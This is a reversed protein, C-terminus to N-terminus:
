YLYNVLRDEEFELICDFRLNKLVKGKPELNFNKIISNRLGVDIFYLKPRKTIEKLKNTYFPPVTTIVYSKELADLYKKLTSFSINLESSLNEYYLINGLGVALYKLLKELRNMDEISFTQM